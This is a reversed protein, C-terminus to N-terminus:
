YRRLAEIPDLLYARRAPYLGSIIGMAGAFGFGVGIAVSCIFARGGICIGRMSFAGRVKHRALMRVALRIGTALDM